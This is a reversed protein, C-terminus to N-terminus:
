KAAPAPPATPAVEVLLEGRAFGAVLETSLSVATIREASTAWQDVMSKLMVGQQGPGWSAEPLAKVGAVLRPVDLVMGGSAGKLAGDAAPTPAKFASGSRALLAELSRAPGVVIALKGDKVAAAVEGGAAPLRWPNKGLSLKAKGIAQAAIGDVAGQIAATVKAPDKVALLAEAKFFRLPEAQLVAPKGQQPVLSVGIASSGGFGALLEGVVQAVPPPIGQAALAAMLVNPEAGQEAAGDGRFVFVASPDLQALLASSTGAALATKLAPERAGLPMAVTLGLRDKGARLGFAVGDRFQAMDQLAPSGAPVFFRAAVGEGLAKVSQQYVPVTALTAGAPVAAAARVTAVADAGASFLATREVVAYAFAIPGGAATRWVVVQPAGSEVSRETAGLREKAATSITAELKAEDGVPLTLVVDPSGAGRSGVRGSLTLGRQPDLGAAAIARADFPDFGLRGALVARGDRLAAGFPFTVATALVDSSQQAFADLSPVVLVAAADAAVFREVPPPPRSGCRACGTTIALALSAALLARSKRM